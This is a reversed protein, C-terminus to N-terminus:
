VSLRTPLTLHTYSVPNWTSASWSADLVYWGGLLPFVKDFLPQAKVQEKRFDDSCSWFFNKLKKESSWTMLREVPGELIAMLRNQNLQFMRKLVNQHVTYSDVPNREEYGGCAFRFFNDCPNTSVNLLEMLYGTTKLCSSDKCVNQARVASAKAEQLQVSSRGFLGAFILCLILLLLTIAALIMERFGFRWARFTITDGVIPSKDYTQFQDAM